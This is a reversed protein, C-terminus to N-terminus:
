QKFSYAKATFALFEEVDITNPTELKFKRTITGNTPQYLDGHNKLNGFDFMSFKGQLKKLDTVLNDTEFSLVISDTATFHLQIIDGGFYPQLEGYFTEYM